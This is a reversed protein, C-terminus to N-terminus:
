RNDGNGQIVNRSMRSDLKEINRNAVDSLDYGLENAVSAVYWLVDGLEDIIGKKCDELKLDDRLMKKVKEAVEGAEGNLGLVTYILGNYWTDNPYQATNRAYEQYKNMEMKKM